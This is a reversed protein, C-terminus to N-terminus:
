IPITIQLFCLVELQKKYSLWFRLASYCKFYMYQVIGSCFWHTDLNYLLKDLYTILIKVFMPALIMNHCQGLYAARIDVPWPSM